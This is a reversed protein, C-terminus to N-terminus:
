GTFNSRVDPLRLAHIRKPLEHEFDLRYKQLRRKGCRSDMLALARLLPRNSSLMSQLPMNLSDFIADTLAMHDEIGRAQLQHEIEDEQESSLDTDTAAHSEGRAKLYQYFACGYIKRGDLTLWFEGEQDHARRHRTLHIKVRERCEPAFRAEILHKLKTWQMSNLGSNLTRASM